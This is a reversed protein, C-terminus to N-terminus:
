SRESDDDLFFNLGKALTLTLIGTQDIPLSMPGLDNAM